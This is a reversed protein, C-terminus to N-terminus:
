KFPPSSVTTIVGDAHVLFPSAHLILTELAINTRSSSDANRLKQSLMLM